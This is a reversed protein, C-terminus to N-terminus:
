QLQLSLVYSFTKQAWKRSSASQMVPFEQGRVCLLWCAKILMRRKKNEPWYRWAKQENPFQNLFNKEFWFSLCLIINGINHSQYARTCFCDALTVWHLGHAVNLCPKWPMTDPLFPQQWPFLKTYGEMLYISNSPTPFQGWATLCLM